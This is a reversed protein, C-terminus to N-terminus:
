PPSRPPRTPWSRASGLAVAGVIPLGGLGNGLVSLIGARRGHALSRGVVFLVSPGPVVILVLSTLAFAFLTELTPM